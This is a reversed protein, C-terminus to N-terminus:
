QSERIIINQSAVVKYGLKDTITLKAPYDGPKRYEKPFQHAEDRDPGVREVSTEDGFNWTYTYPPKGGRATVTFTLKKKPPFPMETPEYGQRFFSVDFDVGLEAPSNLVLVGFEKFEFQAHNIYYVLKGGWSGREKYQHDPNTDVQPFQGEEYSRDGWEWRLKFPNIGYSMAFGVHEGPLIVAQRQTFSTIQTNKKTVIIHKAHKKGDEIVDGKVGVIDVWVYYEGPDEYLHEYVLNNNLEVVDGAGDKFHWAKRHAINPGDVVFGVLLPAKGTDISSRLSRIIAM